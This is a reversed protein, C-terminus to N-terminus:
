VLTGDLPISPEGSRTLGVARRHRLVRRAVADRGCGLLEAIEGHSLGGGGGRTLGWVAEGAVAALLPQARRDSLAAAVRALEVSSLSALWEAFVPPFAFPPPGAHKKPM